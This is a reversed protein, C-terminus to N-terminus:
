TVENWCNSNQNVKRVQQQWRSSDGAATVMQQGPLLASDKKKKDIKNTDSKGTEIVDQKLSILFLLRFALM